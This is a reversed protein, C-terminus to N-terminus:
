SPPCSTSVCSSLFYICLFVPLLYAPLCSVSLGGLPLVYGACLFCVASLFYMGLVCSASLFYVATM